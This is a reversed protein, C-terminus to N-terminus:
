NSKSAARANRVADLLGRVWTYDLGYNPESEIVASFTEPTMAEIDKLELQFMVTVRSQM